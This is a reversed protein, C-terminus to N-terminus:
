AVIFRVPRSNVSYLISNEGNAVGDGLGSDTINKDIAEHMSSENIRKLKWCDGDDNWYVRKCLNNRM